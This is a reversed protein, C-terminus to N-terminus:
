SGFQNISKVFNMGTDSFCIISLINILYEEPINNLYIYKYLYIYIYIM